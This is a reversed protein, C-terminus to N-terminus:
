ITNTCGGGPQTTRRSSSLSLSTWTGTPTALTLVLPVGKGWDRGEEGGWEQGWGAEGPGLGSLFEVLTDLKERLIPHLFREPPHHTTGPLM